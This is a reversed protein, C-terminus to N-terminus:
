LTITKLSRIEFCNDEKRKVDIRSLINVTKVIQRGKPKICVVVTLRLTVEKLFNVEVAQYLVTTCEEASHIPGNFM